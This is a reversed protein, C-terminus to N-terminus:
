RGCLGCTEPCKEGNRNCAKVGQRTGIVECSIENGANKGTDPIWTGVFDKCRGEPFSPAHTITPQSSISPFSSPVHTPIMDPPGTQGMMEDFADTFSCEMTVNFDPVNQPATKNLFCDMTKQLAMFVDWNEWALNDSEMSDNPYNIYHGDEDCLNFYMRNNGLAYGMPEANSATGSDIEDGIAILKHCKDCVLARDKQWESYICRSDTIVDIDVGEKYMTYNRWSEGDMDYVEKSDVGAFDLLTPMIDITSVPSTIKVGSTGFEKPYHIFQAIRNGNEFNTMKAEVGHDLQFLFITNDLKGVDELTQLLAGVGDDIWISGLDHRTTSNGAREFITDRYDSCGITDTMLPIKPEEQLFGNPTQRCSFSRLADVMDGSPHPVTPNFYRNSQTVITLKKAQFRHLL